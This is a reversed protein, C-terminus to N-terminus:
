IKKGIALNLITTLRYAFEKKNKTSVPLNKTKKLHGDNDRYTNKYLNQTYPVVPLV